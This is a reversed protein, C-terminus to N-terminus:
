DETLGGFSCSFFFFFEFPISVKSDNVVGDGTQAGTQIETPPPKSDTSRGESDQHLEKIQDLISQFIAEDDDDGDDGAVESIRALLCDEQYNVCKQLATGTDCECEMFIERVKEETLLDLGYDRCQEVLAALEHEDEETQCAKEESEASTEVASLALATSDAAGDAGDHATNAAGACVEM